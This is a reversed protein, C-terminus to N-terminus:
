AVLRDLDTDFDPDPRIARANLSPLARLEPFGTLEAETPLSANLVPVPLVTRGSELALRIEERVHDVPLTRRERLLDLWRPGIVTLVITASTIERRLREPFPQGAPISEHDYFIEWRPLRSKLRECLFKVTDPSDSRRYSLFLHSM